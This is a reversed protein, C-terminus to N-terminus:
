TGLAPLIDIPKVGSKDPKQIPAGWQLLANIM